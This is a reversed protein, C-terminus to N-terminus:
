FRLVLALKSYIDRRQHLLWEVGINECRVNLDQQVSRESFRTLEIADLIGTLLDSM